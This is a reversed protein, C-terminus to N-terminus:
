LDKTVIVNLCYDGLVLLRELLIKSVTAAMSQSMSFSGGLHSDMCIVLLM